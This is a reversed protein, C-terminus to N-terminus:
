GIRRQESRIRDMDEVLSQADVHDSLGQDSMNQYAQAAVDYQHELLRAYLPDPRERIFKGWRLDEASWKRDMGPEWAMVMYFKGRDEVIMDNVCQWGAAILVLRVEAELGQPQLILRSVTPWVSQGNLLIQVMSGGGLGAITVTRVEGQRLGEFGNSKRVSVKDMCSAAARRAGALPGDAVDLAVAFPVVGSQVLAVPLQGHDTAIDAMPEGAIVQSAVARLRM